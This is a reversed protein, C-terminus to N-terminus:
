FSMLYSPNFVINDYNDFCYYYFRRLKDSNRILSVAMKIAEKRNKNDDDILIKISDMIQVHYKSFWKSRLKLEKQYDSNQNYLQQTENSIKPVVYEAKINKMGWPFLFSVDENLKTEKQEEEKFMNRMNLRGECNYCFLSMNSCGMNKCNCTFYPDMNENIHSQAIDQEISKQEEFIPESRSVVRERQWLKKAKQRQRKEQNINKQWIKKKEEVYKDKMERKIRNSSM